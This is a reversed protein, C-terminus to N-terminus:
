EQYKHCQGKNANKWFYFNALMLQQYIASEALEEYDIPLLVFFGVLLTVLVMATSAPLIRRIRRLWFQSLSFSNRDLDVLIQGTILYGSIVFFIDVGIFGGPFGLGAHYFVVLLVALARLGDVDARYETKAHNLM